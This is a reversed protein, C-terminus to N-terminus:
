EGKAALATLLEEIREEALNIHIAAAKQVARLRKNEARLNRNALRLVDIEECVHTGSKGCVRCKM